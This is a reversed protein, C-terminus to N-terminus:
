GESSSSPSACCRDAHEDCQPGRGCYACRRRCDLCLQDPCGIAGGQCRTLCDLCHNKSCGSCVGMGISCVQIHCTTCMFFIEADELEDCVLCFQVRKGDLIRLRQLKADKNQIDFEVKKLHKKLRKNELGLATGLAAVCIHAVYEQINGPAARKKSNM